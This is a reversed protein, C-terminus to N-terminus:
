RPKGICSHALLASWATVRAVDWLKYAAKLVLSFGLRVQVEAKKKKEAQVQDPPKYPRAKRAKPGRGAAAAGGQQMPAPAGAYGGGAAPLPLSLSSAFGAASGDPWMGSGAVAFQQEPMSLAGVLPMGSGALPIGSGGSGGLPLGSGGNGAMPLGGFLNGGLSAYYQQLFTADISSGNGAVPTGSGGSGVLPLGSGGSGALPLVPQGGSTVVVQPAQQRVIFPGPAGAVAAAPRSAPEFWAACLRGGPLRSPSRRLVRLGADASWRRREGQQLPQVGQGEDGGGAGQAGQQYM